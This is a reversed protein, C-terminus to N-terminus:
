KGPKYRTSGYFSHKMGSATKSRILPSDAGDPPENTAKNMYFAHKGEEIFLKEKTSWRDGFIDRAILLTERYRQCQESDLKEAINRDSGFLKFLKTGVGRFQGRKNIVAELTGKFYGPVFRFRNVVVYGIARREEASCAAGEAMIIQSLMKEDASPPPQIQCAKCVINLSVSDYWTGNVYIAVTAFERNKFTMAFTPGKGREPKRWQIQDSIDVVGDKTEETAVARFEIKEDFGFVAGKKPAIIKATRKGM